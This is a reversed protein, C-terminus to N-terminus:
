AVPKDNNPKHKDSFKSREEYTLLFALRTAAHYLHSLGTEEDKDSIFPNWWKWM